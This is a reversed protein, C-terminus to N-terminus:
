EVAPARFEVHGAEAPRGASGLEKLASSLQIRRLVIGLRFRERHAQVATATWLAVSRVVAEGHSILLSSGIKAMLGGNVMLITWGVM